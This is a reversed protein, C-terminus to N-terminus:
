VMSRCYVHWSKVQSNILRLRVSNNAVRFIDKKALYEALGM